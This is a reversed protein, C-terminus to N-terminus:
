EKTKRSDERQPTRSVLHQESNGHGARPPEMLRLRGEGVLDRGRGELAPRAVAAFTSVERAGATARKGGGGPDQLTIVAQKTGAGGPQGTLHSFKVTIVRSVLLDFRRGRQM